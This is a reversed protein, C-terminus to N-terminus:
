ASDDMFPFFINIALDGIRFGFHVVFLYQNDKMVRTNKLHLQENLQLNQIHRHFPIGKLVLQLINTDVACHDQRITDFFLISEPQLTLRRFVVFANERFAGKSLSYFTVNEQKIFKTVFAQSIIHQYIHRNFELFQWKGVTQSM